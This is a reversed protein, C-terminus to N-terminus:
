VYIGVFRECCTGLGQTYGIDCIDKGKGQEKLRREVKIKTHPSDVPYEEMKQFDIKYSAGTGDKIRVMSSKSKYENEIVFNVELKFPRFKDTSPDKYYWQVYNALDKARDNNVMQTEEKRLYSHLADCAKNVNAQLGSVEIM